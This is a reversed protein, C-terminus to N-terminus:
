MYILSCFVRFVFTHNSKKLNIVLLSSGNLNSYDKFMFNCFASLWHSYTFFVFLKKGKKQYSLCVQEDKNADIPYLYKAILDKWFSEEAKTMFDVEGNQLEPDEM